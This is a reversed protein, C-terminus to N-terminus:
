FSSQGFNHFPANFSVSGIIGSLMGSFVFIVSIPVASVNTSFDISSRGRNTSSMVSSSIHCNCCCCNCFDEDTPEPRGDKDLKPGANMSQDGMMPASEPDM